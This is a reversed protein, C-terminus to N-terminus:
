SPRASSSAEQRLRYRGILFKSIAMGLALVASVFALLVFLRPDVREDHEYHLKGDAGLVIDTDEQFTHTNGTPDSLNIWEYCLRVPQQVGSVKHWNYRLCVDRISSFHDPTHFLGDLNIGSAWISLLIITNCLVIMTLTILVSFRRASRQRLAESMASDADQNNCADTM